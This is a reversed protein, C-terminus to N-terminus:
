SGLNDIFISDADPAAPAAAFLAADPDLFLVDDSIQTTSARAMGEDAIVPSQRQTLGIVCAALGAAAALSIWGSRWLLARRPEIRARMRNLELELPRAWAPLARAIGVLAVADPSRALSEAQSATLPQGEALVALDGAGVLATSGLGRRYIAGLSRTGTPLESM